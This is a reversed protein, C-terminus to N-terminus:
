HNNSIFIGQRAGRRLMRSGASREDAENISKLMEFEDVGMPAIAKLELKMEIKLMVVQAFRCNVNNCILSIPFDSNLPPRQFTEYRCDRQCVEGCVPCTWYIMSPVNQYENLTWEGELDKFNEIEIKLENVKGETKKEKKKM